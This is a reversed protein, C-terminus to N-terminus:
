WGVVGSRDAQDYTPDDYGNPDVPTELPGGEHASVDDGEEDEGGPLVALTELIANWDGEFRVAKDDVFVDCRPKRGLWIDSFPVEVSKLYNALLEANSQLVDEPWSEDGFRATYISIRWGLSMLEGLAERAGPKVEGFEPMEYPDDPFQAPSNLITGDLDVAAWPTRAGMHVRMDDEYSEGWRDADALAWERDVPEEEALDHLDNVAGEHNPMHGFQDTILSDSTDFDRTAPFSSTQHDDLARDVPRIERLEREETHTIDKVGGGGGYGRKVAATWDM